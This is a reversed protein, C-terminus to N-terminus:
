HWVLPSASASSQTPSTVLLYFPTGGNWRGDFFKSPPKSRIRRRNTSVVGVSEYKWSRNFCFCSFTKSQAFQKCIFSKGSKQTPLEEARYFNSTACSASQAQLRHKQNGWFGTVHVWTEAVSHKIRYLHLIDSAIMDKTLLQKRKSQDHPIIIHQNPKM